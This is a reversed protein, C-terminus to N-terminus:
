PHSQIESMTNENDLDKRYANSRAKWNEAERQARKKEFELQKINEEHARYFM